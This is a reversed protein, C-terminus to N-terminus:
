HLVGRVVSSIILALGLIFASTVVAVAVNGKKLEEEENINKTLLDWIKLGGCLFGISFLSVTVIVILDSIFHDPVM